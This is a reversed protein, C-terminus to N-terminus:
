MGDEYEEMWEVWQYTEELTEVNSPNERICKEHKKYFPLITKNEEGRFHFVRERCKHCCTQLNMGM